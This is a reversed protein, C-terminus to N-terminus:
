NRELKQLDRSAQTNVSLSQTWGASRMHMRIRFFGQTKKKWVFSKPVNSGIGEEVSSRRKRVSVQSLAKGHDIKNRSEHTSDKQRHRVDNKDSEIHNM